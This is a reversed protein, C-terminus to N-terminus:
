NRQYRGYIEFQNRGREKAKYLAEDAQSILEDLIFNAENGIGTCSIGTSISLGEEHGNPTALKLQNVHQCLRAAVEAAEEIGADPLVVLFEDGGWRGVWDYSRKAQDMAQALMRLAEDGFQHGYKDNVPKLLDMDLLLLSLPTDNRSARSLEAQAYEIIARRNFLLTLPDTRSLTAMNALSVRLRQELDRRDTIDRIVTIAQVVEGQDAVPIIRLELYYEAGEIEISEECTQTEGSQFARAYYEAIDDPFFPIVDFAHMGACDAQINFAQDWQTYPNNFLTVRLDKDVVMIAEELSEITTRYQLESKKLEAETTKLKTIDMVSVIVRGWTDEFGNLMSARLFIHLPTHEKDLHYTEIEFRTQGEAFAVFEERMVRNGEAYMALFSGQLLEDVPIWKLQEHTTQNYALIKVREACADVEEPHNLFYQNLDTVGKARIEEIYTKVDSFDEEWLSIPSEEFLSRFREESIELKRRVSERHTIDRGIAQCCEPSGDSNHVLTLNIELLLRRGDKTVLTREYVTLEEGALLRRLNEHSSEIEEPAVINQVSKGILEEAQYGLLSIVRHNLALIVFDLDFIIIADNNQEFLAKYNRQSRRLKVVSEGVAKRTLYFLTVMLFFNALNSFVQIQSPLILEQQVISFSNTIPLQTLIVVGLSLSFILILAPIQLLLASATILLLFYSWYSTDNYGTLGLLGIPVLLWAGFIVFQAAFNLKGQALFIQGLFIIVYIYLGQPLYIPLFDRAALLVVIAIVTNILAAIRLGTKFIRAKYQRESDAFKPVQIWYKYKSLM